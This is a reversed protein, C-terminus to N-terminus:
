DLHKQAQNLPINSSSMTAKSYKKAQNRRNKGLGTPLFLNATVPLSVLYYKSLWLISKLIHSPLPTDYLTRIIPKTEFDVKAVKRIVIGFTKSRGLPIEVITGPALEQNSSYTLFGSDERFVRTPIVEYYM